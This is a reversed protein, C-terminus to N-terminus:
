LDSSILGADTLTRAMPSQPILTRDILSTAAHFDDHEAQRDARRPAVPVRGQPPPQAARQRSVAVPDGEVLPVHRIVGAVAVEVLHRPAFENEIPLPLIHSPAGQLVDAIGVHRHNGGIAGVPDSSGPQDRIARLAQADEVIEIRRYGQRTQAAALRRGIDTRAPEAVEIEHEAIGAARRDLLELAIEARLLHRRKITVGVRLHVPRHLRHRAVDRVEGIKAGIGCVPLGGHLRKEELRRLPAWSLSEQDAACLIRLIKGPRRVDEEHTVQRWRLM